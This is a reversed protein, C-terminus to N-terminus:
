LLIFPDNQALETGSMLLAQASLDTMLDFSELQSYVKKSYIECIRMFAPGDQTRM